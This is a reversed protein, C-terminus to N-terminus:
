GALAATPQEEAPAPGRLPVEKVFLTLVFVLVAAPAAWIFV